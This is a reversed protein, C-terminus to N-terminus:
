MWKVFGDVVLTFFFLFYVKFALLYHHALNSSHIRMLVYDRKSYCGVLLIRIGKYVRIQIINMNM